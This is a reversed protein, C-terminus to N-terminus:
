DGKFAPHHKAIAEAIADRFKKEDFEENEDKIAAELLGTLTHISRVDLNKERCKGIAKGVSDAILRYDKRRM